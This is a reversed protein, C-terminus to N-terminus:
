LFDFYQSFTVREGDLSPACLKSEDGWPSEPLSLPEVSLLDEDENARQYDIIEVLESFAEFSVQRRDQARRSTEETDLSLMDLQTMNAQKKSIDRDPGSRPDTHIKTNVLASPSSQRIMRKLKEIVCKIQHRSDARKSPSIDESQLLNRLHKKVWYESRGLVLAIQAWKNGVEIWTKCLLLMDSLTAKTRCSPSGAM